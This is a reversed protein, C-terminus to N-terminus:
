MGTRTLKERDDENGAASVTANFGVVGEVFSEFTKFPMLLLVGTDSVHKKGASRVHWFLLGIARVDGSWLFGPAVVMLWGPLGVM